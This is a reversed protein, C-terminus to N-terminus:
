GQQGLQLKEVKGPREAVRRGQNSTRLLWAGVFCAVLVLLLPDAPVRFRVRPYFLALVPAGVIYIAILLRELSTPPQRRWWALRLALLVLLPLYVVSAVIKYVRSSQESTVLRDYPAFYELNKGAFLVVSRGPHREIWHFAEHRYFRDREVEDLHRAAAEHRYHGIDVTGGTRVGAHESYGQLLNVGSNTAIPVAADLTLANRLTWALPLVAAVSVMVVAKRWNRFALWAASLLLAYLFTPVTVMLLGFVVGAAAPVELFALALTLLCAALAQPYFTGATYIGLPYLAVLPAALAAAVPGAIRGALRWCAWVAVGWAAFGLLRLAALPLSALRLFALAFPYGPARFATAHAGDVSFTGHAALNHAIALYDPEDPRFRISSGLVLSYIVAITAM